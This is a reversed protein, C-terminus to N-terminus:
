NQKYFHNLSNKPTWGTLRHEEVLEEWKKLNNKANDLTYNLTPFVSILIEFTPIIFGKIFGVQSNPIDIGERDCLFSIPLNEKKERDGQNWFEKHLLEVWIISINFSKTNHALDSCHIFFNLLDQQEQFKMKPNNSFLEFKTKNDNNIDNLDINSNIKAHIISVVKGHNAMDTSLIANIIRKRIIKYDDKKINEFINNEKNKLLKFLTSSHFNELCSLDNYIIAIETSANIHYNNNLGQHSIDHGLAAIFISLIDLLNTNAIEEANSNLFFLSLTQTVDAGHISNHYYIKEYYKNSLSYLFTDLKKLSIIKENLLNFSKFITKAILPLTNNYGIKKKLEFINFDNTLIEKTNINNGSIIKPIILFPSKSIKNEEYNITSSIKSNSNNLSLLLPNLSKIKKISNKSNLPSHLNLNSNSNNVNLPLLIRKTKQINPFQYQNIKNILNPKKKNISLNNNNSNNNKLPFDIINIKKNRNNDSYYYQINNKNKPSVYINVKNKIRFIADLQLKNTKNLVKGTSFSNSLFSDSNMRQHSPKTKVRKITNIYQKDNTNINIKKLQFSPKLLENNTKKINFNMFNIKTNLDIFDENYNNVYDVLQKFNPDKTSQNLNDNDFLEYSYISHSTIMKIVWELDNIIKEDKKTIMSIYNITERLILIIKEYTTSIIKENKNSIRLIKTKLSMKYLNSM